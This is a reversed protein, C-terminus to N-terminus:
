EPKWGRPKNPYEKNTYGNSINNIFTYEHDHLDLVLENYALAAALEDDYAGAWVTKNNVRSAVYWQNRKKNYSVGKYQSSKNTSPPVNLNNQYVTSLRLNHKINNLKNNDKHDLYKEPYRNETLIYVITHATIYYPKKNFTVTLIRYGRSGVCGAKKGAYKTNFRDNNERFKWYLNGHLVNDEIEERYELIEHFYEVPIITNRQYIM